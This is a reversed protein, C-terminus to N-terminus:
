RRRNRMVIEYQVTKNKHNNALRKVILGSQKWQTIMLNFYFEAVVFLGGWEIDADVETGNRKEM